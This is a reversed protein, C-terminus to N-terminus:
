LSAPEGHLRKRSSAELAACILDDASCGSVIHYVAPCTLTNEAHLHTRSAFGKKDTHPYERCTRPRHEYIRCRGDEALFPCPLVRMQQRGDEPDTELYTDIFAQRSLGLHKAIRKIDADSLVPKLTKCCHSCRVCDIAAFVDEHLERAVNDVRRESPAMKLGRLFRFHDEVEAEAHDRWATMLEEHQDQM